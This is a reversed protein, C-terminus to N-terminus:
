YDAKRVSNLAIFEHVIWIPVPFTSETKLQVLKIPDAPPQERPIMLLPTRSNGERRLSWGGDYTDEADAIDPPHPSSANNRNALTFNKEFGSVVFGAMFAYRQGKQFRLM